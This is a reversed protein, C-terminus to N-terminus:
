HVSETSLNVGVGRCHVLTKQQRLPEDLRIRGEAQLM